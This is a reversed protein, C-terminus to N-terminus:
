YHSHWHQALLIVSMQQLVTLTRRDEKILRLMESSPAKYTHVINSLWSVDDGVEKLLTLYADFDDCAYERMAIKTRIHDDTTLCLTARTYRWNYSGINGILTGNLNVEGETMWIALHRLLQEDTLLRNGQDDMNADALWSPITHQQQQQHQQQQHQQQQQQQQQHQQQQQQQHQQQQQQQQQQQHQQQQQPPQETHLKVRTALQYVTSPSLTRLMLIHHELATCQPHLLVQLASRPVDKMEKILTDLDGHIAKSVAQRLEDFFAMLLLTRPLAMAMLVQWVPVGDLTVAPLEMQVQQTSGILTSLQYVGIDGLAGQMADDKVYALAQGVYLFAEAMPYNAAKALIVPNVAASDAFMNSSGVGPLDRDQSVARLLTTEDVSVRNLICALKIAMTDHTDAHTDAGVHQLNDLPSAKNNVHADNIISQVVSLCDAVYSVPQSLLEHLVSSVRVDDAASLMLQCVKDPHIIHIQYDKNERLGLVREALVAESPDVMSKIEDTCLSGLQTVFQRTGRANFPQKWEQTFLCIHPTLLDWLLDWLLYWLVACVGNQVKFPPSIHIVRVALRVACINAVNFKSTVVAASTTAM